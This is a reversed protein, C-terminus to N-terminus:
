LYKQIITICTNKYKYKYKYNHIFIKLNNGIPPIYVCKLKTAVYLVTQVTTSSRVNLDNRRPKIRYCKLKTAITNCSYQIIAPYSWMSIKVRLGNRRPNLKTRYCKFKAATIYNQTQQSQNFPSDCYVLLFFIYPHFTFFAFFIKTPVFVDM